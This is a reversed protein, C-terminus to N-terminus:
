PVPQIIANFTITVTEGPKLEGQTYGTGAGDIPMLLLYNINITRTGAVYECGDGVTVTCYGPTARASTGGHTVLFSNGASTANATLEAVTAPAALDGIIYDTDLALKTPLPDGLSTLDASASGTNSVEITYRMYSGTISKANNAAVSKSGNVPDWLLEVTKTVALNAAQVEYASTDAHQGNQTIDQNNATDVDLVSLSEPDNFVIDEIASDPIDNATGGPSINGNDDNTIAAEANGIVSELAAATDTDGIAVQGTLTMVSVSADAQPSPITSVIFVKRSANPALQDIFVATETGDYIDNGEDVLVTYADPDFNDTGSFPGATGDIWSKPTLLFDQTGNGYNTVTFALVQGTAGQAVLVNAADDAVVTFNIVRDEVFSVSGTATTGGGYTLTATNLIPVGAAAFVTSASLTSLCGIFALSLLRKLKFNKM